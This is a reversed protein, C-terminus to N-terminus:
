IDSSIRTYIVLPNRYDRRANGMESVDCLICLRLTHLYKM